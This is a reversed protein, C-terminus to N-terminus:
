QRLGLREALREYLQYQERVFTASEAPSRVAPIGGLTEVGALWAPDRALKTFVDRWREVVERPLGPPGALASWAALSEMQPWGLSRATPATPLDKLPERTTTM